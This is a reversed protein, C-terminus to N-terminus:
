DIHGDVVSLQDPYNIEVEMVNCVQCGLNLCSDLSNLVGGNLL